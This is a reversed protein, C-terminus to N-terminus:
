LRRCVCGHYSPCHLHWGNAEEFHQQTADWHKSLRPVTICKVETVKETNSERASLTPATTNPQEVCSPRSCPYAELVEVSTNHELAASTEAFAAHRVASLVRLSKLTSNAQLFPVIRRWPEAIDTLSHLWLDKIATTPSELAAARFADATEDDGKGLQGVCIIGMASNSQLAMLIPKLWTTNFMSIHNEEEDDNIALVLFDRM